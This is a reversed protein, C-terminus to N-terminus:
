NQLVKKHTGDEYELIIIKNKTDPSIKKGAMDYANKIKKNKNNELNEKTSLTAMSTTAVMDGLFYSPGWFLHTLSEASTSINFKLLKIENQSSITGVLENTEGLFCLNRIGEDIETFTNSLVNSSMLSGTSVQYSEITFVINGSVTNQKTVYLKQNVVVISDYTGSPLNFSSETGTVINYKVIKNNVLLVLENTEKCFVFDSAGSLAPTTYNYESILNGTVKDLECVSVINSSSEKIVFLRGNATAVNVYIGSSNAPWPLQLTSFMDTGVNYKGLVNVGSNLTFITNSLPDFSASGINQSGNSFLYKSLMQAGSINNLKNMYDYIVNNSYSSMTCYLNQAGINTCYLLSLLILKKM